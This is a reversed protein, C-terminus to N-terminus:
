CRGYTRATEVMARLNEDPTDRGLQDGTSLIFGGGEAAADICRRAAARVDDPSGRLMVGTTRLNGKLIIKNGYLRKMEALDCDGMPPEELPDIVTLHTEEAMIKVLAKEPGCSHVHTPIGVSTALEIARKVAPLALQRFIQVTQFVLTGSGGCLFFDPKVPFAMLKKFREEVAEIRKQAWEEHKDPNDYYRYIEEPDHLALTGALGIGVIGRDGLLEKIRRVVDPGVLDPKVGEVPEYRKPEPPLGLKEVPVRYGPSDAVRFVDATPHWVRKGDEIRSLQTVIRRDERLIIFREWGHAEPSRDGFLDVYYAEFFADVDFHNACDIYARWLPPDNYLYIDWFPKGTLRCPIMNSFDPAVPVCDPLKGALVTLLRERSTIKAL